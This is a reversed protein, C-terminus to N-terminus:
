KRRLVSNVRNVAPAFWLATGLGVFIDAIKGNVANSETVIVDAGLADGQNLKRMMQFGEPASSLTAALLGIVIPSIGEAAHQFMFTGIGLAGVAASLYMVPEILTSYYDVASAEESVDSFLDAELVGDIHDQMTFSVGEDSKPLKEDIKTVVSQLWAREGRSEAMAEVEAKIKLAISSVLAYRSKHTVENNQAIVDIYNDLMSLIYVRQLPMRKGDKTPGLETAIVEKAAIVGENTLNQSHVRAQFKATNMLKNNAYIFAMSAAKMSVLATAIAGLSISEGAALAPYVLSTFAIFPALSLAYVAAPKSHQRMTSFLYSTYVKGFLVPSKLPGFNSAEKFDSSYFTQGYKKIDALMTQRGEKGLLSQTMHAVSTLVRITGNMAFSGMPVAAAAGLAMAGSAIVGLGSRLSAIMTTTMLATAMVAEPLNSSAAEVQAAKEPFSEAVTDSLEEISEDTHSLGYGMVFGATLSGLLNGFTLNFSDGSLGPVGLHAAILISPILVMSGLIMPAMDKNLGLKKFTIVATEKFLDLKKKFDSKQARDLATYELIGKTNSPTLGKERFIEFAASENMALIDFGELTNISELALTNPAAKSIIATLSDSALAASCTGPLSAIDRPAEKNSTFSTGVGRFVYVSAAVLALCVFYRLLNSTKM